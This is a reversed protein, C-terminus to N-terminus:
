KAAEKEKEIQQLAKKMMLDGKTVGFQHRHFAKDIAWTCLNMILIVVGSFAYGIPTTYLARLDRKFIAFM